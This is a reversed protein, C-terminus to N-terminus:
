GITVDARRAHDYDTGPIAGGVLPRYDAAIGLGALYDVVRQAREYAVLSIQAPTGREDAYGVVKVVTKPGAGKILAGVEKLKAMAEPTLNSSSANFYVTGAGPAPIGKPAVTTAAPAPV